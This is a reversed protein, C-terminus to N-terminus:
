ERNTLVTRVDHSNLATTWEDLESSNMMELAFMMMMLAFSMMELAFMMMMLAFNMMKLAFMMMMLAFNMMELAFMMMMLAFNMMKICLQTLPFGLLISCCHLLVCLTTGFRSLSPM